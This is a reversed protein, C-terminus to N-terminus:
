QNAGAGPGPTGIPPLAPGTPQPTVPSGNGPDSTTGPSPTSTSGNSFTGNGLMSAPPATFTSAPFATDLAKLIPKDISFKVNGGGVGLFSQSRLAVHGSVNGVWVANAITTTSTVLWNQESNDTTGTKGMIQTGDNPNASTATGNTLVRQLAYNVGAAIQPTIAQTCSSAPVAHDKGDPTVVRDIAV